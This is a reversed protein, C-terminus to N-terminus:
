FFLFIHFQFFIWHMESSILALIDISTYMIHSYALFLVCKIAMAVTWVLLEVKLVCYLCCINPNNRVNKYPVINNVFPLVIRSGVLEERTLIVICAKTSENLSLLFFQPEFIYPRGLIFWCLIAFHPFTCQVLLWSVVSGPVM